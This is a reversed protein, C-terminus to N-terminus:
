CAASVLKGTAKGPTATDNAIVTLDPQPAIRHSAPPIALSRLLVAYAAARM